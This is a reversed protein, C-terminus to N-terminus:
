PRVIAEDASTLDAMDPIAALEAAAEECRRLVV